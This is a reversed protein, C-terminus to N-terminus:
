TSRRDADRAPGRFDSLSAATAERTRAGHARRPLRAFQRLHALLAARHQRLSPVAAEVTARPGSVDLRRGNATLAVSVGYHVELLVLRDAASYGPM